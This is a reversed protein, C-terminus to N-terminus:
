HFFLFGLTHLALNSHLSVSRYVAFLLLFCDCLTSSFSSFWRSPAAATHSTLPEQFVQPGNTGLLAWPPSKFFTLSHAQGSGCARRVQRTGKLSFPLGLTPIAQGPDGVSSTDLGYPSGLIRMSVKALRVKSRQKEQVGRVKDGHCTERRQGWMVVVAPRWRGHCPRQLSRKEHKPPMSKQHDGM